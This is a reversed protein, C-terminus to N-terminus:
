SDLLAFRCMGGEQGSEIKQPKSRVKDPMSVQKVSLRTKECLRLKDGQPSEGETVKIGHSRNKM